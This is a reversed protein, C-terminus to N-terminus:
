ATSVVKRRDQLLDRIEAAPIALSFLYGQM